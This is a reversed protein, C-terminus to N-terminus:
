IKSSPWNPPVTGSLSNNYMYLSKLKPFMGTIYAPITGKMDLNQLTLSTRLVLHNLSPLVDDELSKGQESILGLHLNEISSLQLMPNKVDFFSLDANRIQVLKLATLSGISSPFFGRLRKASLSKSVRASREALTENKLPLFPWFMEGTEMRSDSYGGLKLVELHSLLGLQSPISGHFFNNSLELHTLKQFRTGVQSPITGGLYSFALNLFKMNQLDFFSSPITGYLRGGFCQLVELSTFASMNGLVYKAHEVREGIENVEYGGWYISKLPSNKIDGLEVALRVHNQRQLDLQTLRPMKQFSPPLTTVNSNLLVFKELTSSLSATWISYASGWIINKVPNGEM